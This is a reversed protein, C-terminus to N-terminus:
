KANSGAYNFVVGNLGTNYGNVEVPWTGRTIWDYYKLATVTDKVWNWQGVPPKFPYNRILASVEKIEALSRSIDKILTGSRYKEGRAYIRYGFYAIATARHLRATLVTREFYTFLDRYQQEPLFPKAREIMALSERTLSVGYNKETKIYNFYEENMMEEPNIWGNKIVWPIESLQAGGAKAWAPALINVIDTWYHFKRNVDHKIFVVPPDIWKGSVHRVWHSPYPDYDLRSHNATSIGLTYFISTIIDFANKFAAKVYPLAQSNYKKLIFEDYINESTLINDKSYRDLAYLNIESPQGIIRTNGYRDTRATYGIINERNLFDAWRGLIYEPWTNAVIGQGNFEAAADFEIITPRNITGAVFDNPHTLFFDHPTEKMMLRIEPYEFLNIAGVINEYEKHTYSFTRVYLKLKREGIVVSAVHNVVASLKEQNSKLKESYQDEARAGTEIFTLVIGQIGPALDLMERYDNRFWEWFSPNDLDITHNTGTKFKDPYYDLDYLAHDWLVVEPIDALHAKTVLKNVMKRIATDRLECLNMILKHSLELHNIHYEPAAAIIALADAYSDSLITWGRIQPEQPLPVAHIKPQCTGLVSLLLFFSGFILKNKM